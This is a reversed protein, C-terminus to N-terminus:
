VRFPLIFCNYSLITNKYPIVYNNPLDLHEFVPQLVFALRPINFAAHSAKM